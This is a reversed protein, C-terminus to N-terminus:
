SPNGTLLKFLTTTKKVDRYRTEMRTKQITRIRVEDRYQIQQETTQYDYSLNAKLSGSAKIGAVVVKYTGPKMQKHVTEGFRDRAYYNDRSIIPLNNVVVLFAAGATPITLTGGSLLTAVAPLGLAIM